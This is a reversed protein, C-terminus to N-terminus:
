FKPIKLNALAVAVNGESVDQEGQTTGEGLAKLVFYKVHTCSGCRGASAM